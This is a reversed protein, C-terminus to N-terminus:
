TFAHVYFLDNSHNLGMSVSVVDERKDTIRLEWDGPALVNEQTVASVLFAFPGM